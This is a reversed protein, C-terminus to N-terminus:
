RVAAGWGGDAARATAVIGAESVIRLVAERAEEPLEPWADVEAALDPDIPGEDHGVAAGQAARQSSDAQIGANEGRASHSKILPNM